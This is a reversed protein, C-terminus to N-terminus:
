PNQQAARRAQLAYGLLMRLEIDWQQVLGLELNSEFLTELHTLTWPLSEGGSQLLDAGSLVSETIHLDTTHDPTTIDLFSRVRNGSPPDVEIIRGRLVGRGLDDPPADLWDREPHFYCYANIGTAGKTPSLVRQAVLRM